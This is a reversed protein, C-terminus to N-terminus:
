RSRKRGATKASLKDFRKKFGEKAKAQTEPSLAADGPGFSCGPGSSGLVGVLCALVVRLRRSRSSRKTSSM